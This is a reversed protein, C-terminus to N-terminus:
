HTFADASAVNLQSAFRPPGGRHRALIAARIPRGNGTALGSEADLPARAPVWARIRAYDPLSANARGISESLTEPDIVGPATWVVAWLADEGEGFVVADRIAPEARLVAEIWEPSVNRGFGTILLNTRRGSLHVFGRGDIRGLDV